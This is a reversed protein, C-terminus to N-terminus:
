KLKSELHHLISKLLVITEIISTQRNYYAIRGTLGIFVLHITYELDNEKIFEFQEIYLENNHQTFTNSIQIYKLPNELLSASYSFNPLIRKEHSIQLLRIKLLTKVIENTLNTLIEFQQNYDQNGICMVDLYDATQFFGVERLFVLVENTRM